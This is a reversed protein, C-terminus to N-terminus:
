NLWLSLIGVKSDSGASSRERANTGAFALLTAKELIKSLNDCSAWTILDLRFLDMLKGEGQKFQMSLFLISCTLEFWLKVRPIVM